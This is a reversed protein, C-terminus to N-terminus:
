PRSKQEKEPPGARGCQPALAEVIEELYAVARGLEREMRAYEDFRDTFDSYDAGTNQKFAYAANLQDRYFARSSRLKELSAALDVRGAEIVAYEQILAYKPWEFGRERLRAASLKAIV